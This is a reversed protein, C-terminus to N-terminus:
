LTYHVIVQDIKQQENFHLMEASRKQTATNVYYITLGNIGILLDLMEFKLDPIRELGIKWYARINEKGAVFGENGPLLRAAMPTTITFDDTYHSLIRDLDHANWAAIWEAAFATAFESTLM